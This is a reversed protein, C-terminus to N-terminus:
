EEGRRIAEANFICCKNWFNTNGCVPWDRDESVHSECLKACREREVAIARTIDVSLYDDERMTNGM